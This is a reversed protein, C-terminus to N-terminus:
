TEGSCAAAQLILAYATCRLLWCGNRNSSQGQTTDNTEPSSLERTFAYVRIPAQCPLDFPESIAQVISEALRATNDEIITLTRVRLVSNRGVTGEDVSKMFECVPRVYQRPQGDMGSGFCTRLVEHKAMLACCTRHLAMESFSTNTVKVARVINYATSKSELKCLAFMQLQPYSLEFGDAVTHSEDDCLEPALPV